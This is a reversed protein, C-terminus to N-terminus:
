PRSARKPKAALERGALGTVSLHVVGALAALAVLGTRGEKHQHQIEAIELVVFALGVLGAAVLPWRVARTLVFIALLLSVIAGLTIVWWSELNIGLVKRNEVSTEQHSTTEPGSEVHATPATTQSDTEVHSDTATTESGTEVHSAPATTESGTEAHPASTTTEKHATAREALAGWIFLLTALALLLAILRRAGVREVVM